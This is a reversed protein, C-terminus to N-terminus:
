VMEPKDGSTDQNSIEVKVRETKPKSKSKWVNWSGRKRVCVVILLLLLALLLVCGVAIGIITIFGIKEKEKIEEEIINNNVVIELTFILYDTKKRKASTSKATVKM